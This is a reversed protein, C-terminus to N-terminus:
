ETPVAAWVSEGSSYLRDIVDVIGASCMRPGSMIRARGTAPLDIEQISIVETVGAAGQKTNRTIPYATERPQRDKRPRAVRRAFPSTEQATDQDATSRSKHASQDEGCASLVPASRATGLGLAICKIRKGNQDDELPNRAITEMGTM